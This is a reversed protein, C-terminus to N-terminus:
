KEWNAFKLAEELTTIYRPVITCKSIKIIGREKYREMQPILGYEGNSYRVLLLGEERDIIDRAMVNNPDLELLRNAIEVANEHPIGHCEGMDSWSYVHKCTLIDEYATILENELDSM